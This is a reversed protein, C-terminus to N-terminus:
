DKMITEGKHKEGLLICISLIVDLDNNIKLMKLQIYLMLNIVILVFEISNKSLMSKNLHM